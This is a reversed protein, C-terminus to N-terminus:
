ATCLDTGLAQSPSTCDKETEREAPTPVKPVVRDIAGELSLGQIETEIASGTKGRVRLLGVPPLTSGRSTHIGWASPPRVLSHSAM